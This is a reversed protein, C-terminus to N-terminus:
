LPLSQRDSFTMNQICEMFPHLNFKAMFSWANEKSILIREIWAAKLALFHSEVDLMNIGGYEIRSILVNRKIRDRKGWIFNYLIRTIQQIIIDTYICNTAIYTLKPIALTKIITVKGFLTLNRSKWRELVKELNTINREWNLEFCKPKDYGVYIGLCKVPLSTLKIGHIYDDKLKNVGLYIGVTKKINLELGTHIGFEKILILAEKVQLKDRLFLTSDDAYQSIKLELEEDNTTIVKYGKITDTNKLKLAMIEVCLIFLLASLPCGQKIGRYVSFSKSIHGNNKICLTSENYITEVWSIFQEGFNFKRLTKIMFKWELSDFAKKFDLFLLLGDTNFQEAYEIIDEVLRINNTM